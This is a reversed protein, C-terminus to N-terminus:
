GRSRHRTHISLPADSIQLLSEGLERILTVLRDTTPNDSSLPPPLDIYIRAKQPGHEVALEVGEVLRTKPDYHVLTIHATPKDM